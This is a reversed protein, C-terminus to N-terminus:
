LYFKNLKFMKIRQHKIVCECYENMWYENMEDWRMKIVINMEIEKMENENWDENMREINM